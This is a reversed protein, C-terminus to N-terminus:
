LRSPVESTLQEDSRHGFMMIHGIFFFGYNLRNKGM